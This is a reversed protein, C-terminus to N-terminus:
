KVEIARFGSGVKLLGAKKLSHVIRHINSRSKLGVGQAIEQLTPAYKKQEMFIKIFELVLSQKSTMVREEM